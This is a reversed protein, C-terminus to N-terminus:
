YDQHGFFADLHYVYIRKLKFPLDHHSSRPFYTGDRRTGFHILALM